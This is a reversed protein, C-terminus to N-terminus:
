KEYSLKKKVILLHKLRSTIMDVAIQNQGGEPVILDAYMKTPEVYKIHMPRVTERYQKIISELTRGRDAMDREIRRLIRLDSDTDVFIKIDILNRLLRNEFILIGEVVIISNPAVRKTENSRKHTKFDYIPQEIYESQKLANIHKVFLESDISQPHDYNIMERKNLPLENFCKYYADQPIITIHDSIENEIAKTICTKGSGTGGAIGIIIPSM